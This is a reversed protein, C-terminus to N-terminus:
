LAAKTRIPLPIQPLATNRPKDQRGEILAGNMYLFNTDYDDYRFPLKDKTQFMELILQKYPEQKAKSIMNTINANPLADIAARKAYAIEFDWSTIVPNHENYTKSLLEGFWSVFGPQGQTEDYVREIVAEEVQQGSSREYWHYMQFVEAKTLNPIHLSRQVNFPSGTKNEIGLVSRVGILAVGHLLYTKQETTKNSEYQRSVAMNRLVAALGSIAEESLADFEDLILILPKALHDKKFLHHFQDLSMGAAFGGLRPALPLYSLLREARGLLGVRTPLPINVKVEEIGLKQVISIAIDQVVKDVDTQSQLHQLSLAITDFREKKQLQYLTQQM